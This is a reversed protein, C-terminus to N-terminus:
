KFFSKKNLLRVMEFFSGPLCRRCIKEACVETLKLYIRCFVVTARSLLIRHHSLEITECLKPLPKLCTTVDPLQIQSRPMSMHIIIYYRQPEQYCGYNKPLMLSKGYVQCSYIVYEKRRVYEMSREGSKVHRYVFCM